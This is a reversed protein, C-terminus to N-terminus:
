CCIKFLTLFVKFLNLNISFAVFTKKKKQNNQAINVILIYVSLHWISAQSLFVESIGMVKADEMHM